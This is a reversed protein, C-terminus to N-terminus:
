DYFFWHSCVKGQLSNGWCWHISNILGSCEVAVSFIESFIIYEGTRWIDQVYKQEMPVTSKTPDVSQGVNKILM